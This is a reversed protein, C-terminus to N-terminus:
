MRFVGFHTEVQPRRSTIDLLLAMVERTECPEIVSDVWLNSAFNYADQFTEYEKRIPAKFAEAEERTDFSQIRTSGPFRATAGPVARLDELTPHVTGCATVALVVIAAGALTVARRLPLM